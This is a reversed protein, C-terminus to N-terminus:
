SYMDRVYVSILFLLSLFLSLSLPQSLEGAKQKQDHQSRSTPARQGRSIENISYGHIEYTHYIFIYMNYILQTQHSARQARLHPGDTQTQPWPRIM